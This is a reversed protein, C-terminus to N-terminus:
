HTKGLGLKALLRAMPSDAAEREQLVVYKEGLLRAALAKYEETLKSDPYLHVVPQHARHSQQIDNHQPIIAVVPKQTVKAIEEPELMATEKHYRNVVVGLVRVRLEEALRITKLADQVSNSDPNVVVLIADCAAIAARAEAGLGPPTDLIILEASGMSDFAQKDLTINWTKLGSDGPIFKLGSPHVRVAEDLPIKESLAKHLSPANGTENGRIIQTALNPRLVDGDVVVVRRGFNNLALALNIATVTRGVGGKAGAIGLVKAM